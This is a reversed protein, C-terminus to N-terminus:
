KNGEVFNIDYVKRIQLAERVREDNAWYKALTSHYGQM